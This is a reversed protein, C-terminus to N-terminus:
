AARHQETDNQGDALSSRAVIFWMPSVGWMVPITATIELGAIAVDGAFVRMPSPIRDKPETGRILYKLRFRIADLAFTNFFSVVIPGRAIRRLECLAAVRTESENFHHFLRNCFVADFQRDPYGTNMVDRVEFRASDAIDPNRARINQWNQGAQEVMHPSSDAGTVQMGGEVLLRTLRGTGCPLDLVHSGPAISKLARLLCTQERRERFSTGYEAPYNAAVQASDFRGVTRRHSWLTEKDPQPTQEPM